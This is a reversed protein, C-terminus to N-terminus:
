ATARPVAALPFPPEGRRTRRSLAAVAAWLPLSVMLSWAAGVPGSVDAPVFLVNGATLSLHMLIALFLSGTRDYLRVMLVRYAPLVAASFAFSHLFLDPALQGAANGSSWLNVILHWVGWLFGTILGTSLVGRRRLLTPIAFGTWGIEEFFGSSLGAGLALALIPGRDPDTLIRPLFRPWIASALLPLALMALPAILLAVAYSRPGTRWAKLRALFDRYGARGHVLGTMLFGSISPGALLAVIALPMLRLMDGAPAPFGAPGGMATLFTGWSFLFVMGYYAQVPHDRAIDCLRRAM